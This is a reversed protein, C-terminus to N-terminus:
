SKGTRARYTDRAETKSMLGQRVMTKLAERLKVKDAGSLSTEPEDGQQAPQEAPQTPQQAEDEAAPEESSGGIEGQATAEGVFGDAFDEGAGAPAPPELKLESEDIHRTPVGLDNKADDTDEGQDGGTTLDLETAFPDQGLHKDEVQATGEARFSDLARGV